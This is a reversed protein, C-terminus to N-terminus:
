PLRGQHEIAAFCRRGNIAFLLSNLRNIGDRWKIALSLIDPTNTTVLFRDFVHCSSKQCLCSIDLIRQSKLSECYRAPKSSSSSHNSICSVHCCMEPCDVSTPCRRFSANTAQLFFTLHLAAVACCDKSPPGKQHKAPKPHNSDAGEVRFSRSNGTPNQPVGPSQRLISAPNLNTRECSLPSANQCPPCFPRCQTPHLPFLREQMPFLISLGFKECVKQFCIKMFEFM